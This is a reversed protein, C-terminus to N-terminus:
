KFGPTWTNYRINGGEEIHIDPEAARRYISSDDTDITLGFRKAFDETSVGVYKAVDELSESRVSLASPPASGGLSTPAAAITSLFLPYLLKM